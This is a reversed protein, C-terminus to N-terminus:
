NHDWSAANRAFNAKKRMGPSYDDPNAKVKAALGQVSEGQRSAERKFSGKTGGEGGHRMPADKGILEKRPREGAMRQKPVTFGM